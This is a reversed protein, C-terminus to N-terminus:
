SPDSIALSEGGRRKDLGTRLSDIGLVGPWATTAVPLVEMSLALRLGLRLGM